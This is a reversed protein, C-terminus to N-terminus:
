NRLGPSLHTGILASSGARKMAESTTVDSSGSLVASNGHQQTPLFCVLGHTRCKPRRCELLLVQEVQARHSNKMTQVAEILADSLATSAMKNERRARRSVKESAQTTGMPQDNDISTPLNLNSSTEVDSTSILAATISHMHHFIENKIIIVSGRTTADDVSAGEIKGLNDMHEFRDSDQSRAVM